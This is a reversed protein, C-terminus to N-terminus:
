ARLNQEDIGTVRSFYKASGVVALNVVICAILFFETARSSLMSTCLQRVRSDRSFLTLSKGDMSISRSFSSVLLDELYAENAAMADADQEGMETAVLVSGSARALFGALKIQSRLQGAASGTSSLWWAEFEQLAVCCTLSADAAPGQWSHGIPQSLPPAHLWAGFNVKFDIGGDGDTDMEKLADQIGDRSMTLRLASKVEMIEEIGVAGDGGRDLRDFLGRLATSSQTGGDLAAFMSDKTAKLIQSRNLGKQIEVALGKEDEKKASYWLYFEGFSVEGDGDNDIDKMAVQLEVATLSLGLDSTMKGLEETDVADSKDTDILSFLAQLDEKEQLERNRKNINSAWVSGGREQRVLQWWHLFEEFDVSGDGDADLAQMASSLDDEAVPVDSLRGLLQGVEERDLTGGGDEDIDDFLARVRRQENEQEQQKKSEWFDSLNRAKRIMRQQSTPSGRRRHLM